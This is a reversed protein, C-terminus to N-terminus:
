KKVPYAAKSHVAGDVTLAKVSEDLASAPIYGVAGPISAVLRKVLDPAPVSKPPKAKARIRQGVWYRGVEDGSMGLVTGDFTARTPTRAPLNIPVVGDGSAWTKRKGLFINKLDTKTVNDVKSTKSVIVVVVEAALTPSSYLVGAAVVTALLKNLM